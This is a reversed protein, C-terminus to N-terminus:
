RIRKMKLTASDRHEGYTLHSLMSVTTDDATFQLKIEDGATLDVHPGNGITFEAYQRTSDEEISSGPIETGNKILRTLVHTGPTPNSDAVTITYRIEYTGTHVITFTDNTGDNYTHLIDKVPTAAEQEFTINYWVGATAVPITSNTHASIDALLFVNDATINGDVELKTSPTTTGIGVNGNGLITIRTNDDTGLTLKANRRNLFTIDSNGISASGLYWLQQDPDGSSNSEYATIVVNSTVDEAPNQIIIQGAYDSGVIGPFNAKIHFVSDPTVTGIGVNGNIVNLTNNLYANGTITTGAVAFDVKKVGGLTLGVNDTGIRYFGSDDDNFFSYSPAAAAGDIIMVGYDDLRLALSGDIAFGIKDPHIYYWGTGPNIEFHISPTAASGVSAIINGRVTLNESINVDGSIVNLGGAIKVPSGGHLTGKITVDQEFTANRGTVNLEGDVKLNGEVELWGDIINHIEELNAFVIKYGLKMDGTSNIYAVDSQTVTNRWKQLYREIDFRITFAVDNSGINGSTDNAYFNFLYDGNTLTLNQTVGDTYSTNDTGNFYFLTLSGNGGSATFNIIINNETIPYTRDTPSTVTVTIPPIEFTVNLYPRNAVTGAEKSDFKITDFNGAPGFGDHQRLYISLNDTTEESFMSTVNWRQFGTQEGAGGFMKISDTSVTNYDGDSPFNPAVGTISTEIWSFSNLVRHTSSNWGEGGNDLNNTNIFLNLNADTVIMGSTVSINFKLILERFGFTGNTTELEVDAGRNSSSGLTWWTDELTENDADQLVVTTSKEGIHIERGIGTNIWMEKKTSLDMIVKSKEFLYDKGSTEDFKVEVIRIPINKKDILSASNISMRIKRHTYNYDLCEVLHTNDSTVICEIGSGKLSKAEEVRKWINDEEVFRIGSYITAWRLKGNEYYTETSKTRQLQAYTINSLIILSILVLILKKM